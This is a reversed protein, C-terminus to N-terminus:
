SHANNKNKHHVITDNMLFRVISSDSQDFLKKLSFFIKFFLKKCVLVIKVFLNESLNQFLRYNKYHVFM